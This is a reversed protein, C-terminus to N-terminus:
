GIRKGLTVVFYQKRPDTGYERHGYKVGVSKVEYYRHKGEKVCHIDASAFKIFAKYGERKVTLRGIWRDCVPKYIINQECKCVRKFTDSDISLRIETSEMAIQTDM